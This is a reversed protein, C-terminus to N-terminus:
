KAFYELIKNVIFAGGILLSVLNDKIFKSIDFNMKDDVSHLGDNIKIFKTELTKEFERLRQETSQEVKEIKENNKEHAENNRKIDQQVGVLTNQLGITTESLKDISASLKEQTTLNRELIVSYIANNKDLQILKEENIELKRELRDLRERDLNGNNEM